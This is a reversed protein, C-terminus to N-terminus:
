KLRIKYKLFLSIKDCYLNLQLIFAESFTYVLLIMFIFSCLLSFLSFAASINLVSSLFPSTQHRPWLPGGLPQGVKIWSWSELLQANMNTQTIDKLLYLVACSFLFLSIVSYFNSLLLAFLKLTDKREKKRRLFVKYNKHTVSPIFQKAELMKCM